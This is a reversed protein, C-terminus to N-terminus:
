SPRGSELVDVLREAINLLAWDREEGSGKLGTILESAETKTLALEEAIANGIAAVQRYTAEANPNKMEQTM